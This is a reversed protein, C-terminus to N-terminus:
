KPFPGFPFPKEERGYTVFSMCEALYTALNQSFTKLDDNADRAVLIVILQVITLAILVFFTFYAAVAYGVMYLVRPWLAERVADPLGSGASAGPDGGTGPGAPGGPGGTGAGGGAGQRVEEFQADPVHPDSGGGSAAAADSPWNRESETSM